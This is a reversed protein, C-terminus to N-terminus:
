PEVFGYFIGRYMVVFILFTLYPEVFGYLKTSLFWVGSMIKSFRSFARICAFSCM